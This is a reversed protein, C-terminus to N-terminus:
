DNSNKSLVPDNVTTRIATALDTISVRWPFCGMADLFEFSLQSLSEAHRRHRWQQRKEQDGHRAPYVPVLPVDNLEKLGLIPISFSRSGPLRMRNVSSSRASCCCYSM